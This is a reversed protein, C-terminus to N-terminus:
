VFSDETHMHPCRPGRCWLSIHPLTPVVSPERVELRTRRGLITHGRPGEQRESGKLHQPEEHSAHGLVSTRGERLKPTGMQLIPLPNLTPEEQMQKQSGNGGLRM